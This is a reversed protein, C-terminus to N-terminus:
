QRQLLADVIAQMVAPPKGAAAVLICNAARMSFAPSAARIWVRGNLGVAIEFPLRTGLLQLILSDPSLLSQAFPIPVEIVVGDRLEGLLKESSTWPKSCNSSCCSVDAGLLPSIHSLRLLLVSGISLQPRSRRTAGEFGGVAALRAPSGSRINVGYYESGKSSVIGVLIDGVRPTYRCSSSICVFTPAHPPLVHRPLLLSATTAKACTGSGVVEVLQQQRQQQQPQQQHSATPVVVASWDFSRAVAAAAAGAAAAASAAEATTGESTQQLLPFFDGPLFVPVEAASM